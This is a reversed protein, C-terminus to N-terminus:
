KGEKAKHTVRGYRDVVKLYSEFEVGVEVPSVFNIGLCDSKALLFNLKMISVRPFHHLTSHKAREKPVVVSTTSITSM